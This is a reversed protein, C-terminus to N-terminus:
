LAFYEKTARTAAEYSYLVHVTCGEALLENIVTEQVQSLTNRGIKFEIFLIRNSRIISYDPWGPKIRSPKTPDAHIVLKFGNRALFGSFENHLDRELELEHKAGAEATTLGANAKRSSSLGLTHGVAVAVVQRDEPAMRELQEKSLSAPDTGM